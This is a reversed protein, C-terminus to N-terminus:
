STSLLDDASSNLASMVVSQEEVSAAVNRTNASVESVGAVIGQIANVVEEVDSQITEVTSRIESTAGSTQTALDKVESAVVAFGRGAEGARAAEITANLSLLNTQDALTQIMDVVRSITSSNQDLQHVLQSAREASAEADSALGANESMRASIEGVAGSMETVSEVISKGIEGAKMRANVRSTIDSVSKIVKTVEGTVDFVPNYAGLLWIESGDKRVRRFEGQLFEGAALQPWFNQYSASSADEPMMFMRHHKGQIEALSYQVTSLFMENAELITGDPQFEIVAQSRDQIEIQSKKQASIDTALKIIKVVKGDDDLVPNYTAQIWFERGNKGFRKYEASQFEGRNLALWFDHYSQSSAFVPDVFMRHHKGQIEVLDYGTVSLFNQNATLIHGDPTFKIIAQSRSLSEMIQTSNRESSDEGLSTGSEFCETESLDSSSDSTNGAPLLQRITSFM